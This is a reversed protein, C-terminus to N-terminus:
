STYIAIWYLDVPDGSLVPYLPGSSGIVQYWLAVKFTSSGIDFVNAYVTANGSGFSGYDPTVIVCIPTSGIGHSISTNNYKNTAVGYKIKINMKDYTVADDDIDAEAISGNIIEDSGISNSGMDSNNIAGDVIKQSTISNNALDSSNISFNAIKIGTISDNEIVNLGTLSNITEYNLDNLLISNNSIQNSDVSNAGIKSIGNNNIDADTISGDVIKSSSVSSDALANQGVAGSGLTIAPSIFVSFIIAIISLAIAVIALTTTTKKSTLVIEGSRVYRKETNKVVPENIESFQSTSTRINKKSEDNLGILKIGCNLCFTNKDANEYGCKNCKKM